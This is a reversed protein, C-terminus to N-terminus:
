AIVNVGKDVCFQCHDLLSSSNSNLTDGYKYGVWNGNDRQLGERGFDYMEGNRYAQVIIPCGQINVSTLGTNQLWLMELNQLSGLTVSTLPKNASLNVSILATNQQLNMNNLQNRWCFLFQLNRNNGVNLYSIENAICDLEILAPCKQVNLSALQNYGCYLYELSTNRSVDLSTLRNSEVSLGRLNLNNSLNISSLSNNSIYLDELNPNRSIDLDTLANFHSYLVHLNSNHTLDLNEFGNGSCYLRELLPNHSVDLEDLQNYVCSLVRLNPNHSVDLSTLHNQPCYMVELKTNHSVDLSLLEDFDCYLTKLNQFLEIGKLSQIPVHQDRNGSCNIFEVASIERDSLVGNEDTDIKHSVYSLFVEDPFFRNNVPIRYEGNGFYVAADFLPENGTGISIADWQAGSGPYYVEVLANCGAFAWDAISTVSTPIHLSSMNSCDMFAETEIRATNSPLTISVPETNQGSEFVAASANEFVPTFAWEAFSNSMEHSSYGAEELAQNYESPWEAFAAPILRVCLTVCFLLALIMCFSKKM